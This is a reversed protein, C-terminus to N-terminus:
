TPPNISLLKAATAESVDRSNFTIYEDGSPTSDDIDEQSRLCLKTIGDVDLMDLGDSNLTINWYASESLGDSTSRSGGDRIGAREDVPM